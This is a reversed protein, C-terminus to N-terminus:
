VSSSTFACPPPSPIHGTVASGSRSLAKGREEGQGYKEKAVAGNQGEEKWGGGEGEPEEMKMGGKM